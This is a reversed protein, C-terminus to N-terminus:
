YGLMRQFRRYSRAQSLSITPASPKKKWGRYGLDTMTERWERQRKAFNFFRTRFARLVPRWHPKGRQGGRGFELRIAQFALDPVAVADPMDKKKRKGVGRIGEREIEAKWQRADRRRTRKVFMVERRSVKRSVITAESRKPFFPIEDVPWPSHRALISIAEPTPRQRRRPRVYLVTERADVRRIKKAKPRSRIAWAAEDDPLGRVQVVRLSKRYARWDRRNPIADKVEELVEEASRHPVSSLLSRTRDPWQEILEMSERYGKDAKLRIM